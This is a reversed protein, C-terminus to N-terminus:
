PSVGGRVCLRTGHVDGCSVPMGSIRQESVRLAGAANSTTGSVFGGRVRYAGCAGEDCASAGADRTTAAGPRDIVNTSLGADRAGADVSTPMRVGGDAFHGADVCSSDACTAVAHPAPAHSKNCACACVSAISLLFWLSSPQHLM